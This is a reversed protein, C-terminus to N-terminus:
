EIVKDAQLLLAQPVDIGLAKATKLNIRLEFTTPQEIPLDGAKAGKLIRDVYSALRYDMQEYKASYAMLCGAEAYWSGWTMSPLHQELALAAIREAEWAFMVDPLVFAARANEAQMETFATNIATPERAHRIRITVGLQAAARKADAEFPLYAVDPNALVDITAVDPVMEKLLELRKATLETAYYSVGTVNGGPKALTRALGSAVPDGSLITVIPITDTAAYAAHGAPESNSVIIDVPIRVLEAAATALGAYSKGGARCDITVTEGPKYGLDGLGRVFPEFEGLGPVSPPGECSSWTLLGIRSIKASQGSALNPLIALLALTWWIVRLRQRWAMM